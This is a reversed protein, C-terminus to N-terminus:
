FQFYLFPTKRGGLISAMCAMMGTQLVFFRWSDWKHEMEFANPGWHALVAAIAIAGCAIDYRALQWPAEFPIAMKHLLSLAAEVSPARFFVWGVLVAAFTVARRFPLVLRDWREGLARTVALLLGHYAGWVVFTWSAGHWLGGLVMTIMLNRHTALDTGRNGGLPIYLYDRLVSSLSIHWRRWFDALDTAKYPSNFNRPLRIGFMYGLGVAMDSYGSFDFYLQYTYGLVCLWADLSSLEHYREFAPDIQASLTDAILVKKVMGIIFFSLAKTWEAAPRATDLNELDLEVERFRVIPGAVLQCFLSVYCAFEFFNRTPTIVGRYSDVIYTITHFTYFSIGVPLVIDWGSLSAPYPIGFWSAATALSGSAFNWYKFFGLLLLDIVIPIVLCRKRAAPTKAELMGIGALYSVATSFAMLACFKYNWFGYFVYGTFALWQYRRQKSDLRWYVLWTVPLFAFLFPISNFLM